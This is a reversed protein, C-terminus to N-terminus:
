SNMQIPFRIQKAFSQILPRFLGLICELPIKLFTNTLCNQQLTLKFNENFYIWLVLILYSKVKVGDM